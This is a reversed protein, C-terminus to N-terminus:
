TTIVPDDAYVYLLSVDVNGRSMDGDNTNEEFNFLVISIMGLFNFPSYFIQLGPSEM